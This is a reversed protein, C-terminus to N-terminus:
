SYMKGNWLMEHTHYLKGSYYLIYVWGCFKGTNMYIKCVWSQAYQTCYMHLNTWSIRWSILSIMTGTKFIGETIWHLYGLAQSVSVLSHIARNAHTFSHDSKASILVMADSFCIIGIIGRACKREITVHAVLLCSTNIVWPALTQLFRQNHLPTPFPCPLPWAGSSKRSHAKPKIHLIWSPICTSTVKQNKPSKIDCDGARTNM